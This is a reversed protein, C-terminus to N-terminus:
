YTDVFFADKEIIRETRYFSGLESGGRSNETADIMCVSYGVPGTGSPETINCWGFTRAVGVPNATSAGQWTSAFPYEDCSKGDPRPYRSPCSRNRNDDRKDTDTLRELATDGPAGPLGSNQADRIHGALQPYLALSYNLTPTYEPFVVGPRYVGPLANDGRSAPSEVEMENSLGAYTSLIRYEWTTRAFGVQGSGTATTAFFSEGDVDERDNMRGGLVGANRVACDGSCRASGVVFLTGTSGWTSYRYLEIQHAWQESATDSYSYNFELFSVGGVPVGNRTFVGQVDRTMCADTRTQWWGDFVHDNCWDPRDEAQLAPSKETAQKLQPADARPTTEVCLSLGDPVKSRKSKLRKDLADCSIHEGASRAAKAPAPHEGAQSVDRAGAVGPAEAVDTPSQASAVSQLPLLAFLLALVPALRKTRKRM